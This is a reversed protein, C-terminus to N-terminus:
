PGTLNCVALREELGKRDKHSRALADNVKELEAELSLGDREKQAKEQEM